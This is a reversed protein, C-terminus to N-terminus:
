VPVSLGGTKPCFQRLYMRSQRVSLLRKEISGEFARDEVEVCVPGDYGCQPCLM